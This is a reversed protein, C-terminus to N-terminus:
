NARQTGALPAQDRLLQRSTNPFLAPFSPEVMKVWVDVFVWPCVCLFADQLLGMGLKSVFPGDDRFIERPTGVVSDFIM